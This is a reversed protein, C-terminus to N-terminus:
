VNVLHGLFVIWNSGHFVDNFTYHVLYMSLFTPTITATM